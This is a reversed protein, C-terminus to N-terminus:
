TDGDARTRLVVPEEGRQTLDQRGLWWVGTTRLAARSATGTAKQLRGREASAARSTTLPGRTTRSASCSRRRRVEIQEGARDNGMLFFACLDSVRAAQQMNHTVIVITVRSKLESVLEEILRMSIPDLSSTPEDM